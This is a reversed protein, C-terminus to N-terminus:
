YYSQNNKQTIALFNTKKINIKLESPYNKFISLDEVVKNELIKDSIEIKNLFLLNKKKLFYFDKKFQEEEFSSLGSINLNNIQLFNLKLFNTNNITVLLIFLFLYIVIKKSIQQHM